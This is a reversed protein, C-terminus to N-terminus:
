MNMHSGLVRKPKSSSQQSSRVANEITTWRCLAESAAEAPAGIAAMARRMAPSLIRSDQQRRWGRERDCGTNQRTGREVSTTTLSKGTVGRGARQGSTRSWPRSRCRSRSCGHQDPPPAPQHEMRAATRALETTNTVRQRESRIRRLHKRRNCPRCHDEARRPPLLRPRARRPARHRRHLRDTTQPGGSSGRGYGRSRSRGDTPM